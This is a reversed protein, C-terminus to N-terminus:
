PGFDWVADVFRDKDFNPNDAALVEAIENVVDDLVMKAAPEGYRESAKNIAGAIAIYDKRTMGEERDTEDSRATGAGAPAVRLSAVSVAGADRGM